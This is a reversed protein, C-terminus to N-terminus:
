SAGRGAVRELYTRAAVDHDRAMLALWRKGEEGRAEGRDSIAWSKLVSKLNWDEATM